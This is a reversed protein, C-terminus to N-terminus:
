HMIFSSSLVYKEVSIAHPRTSACDFTTFQLNCVIANIFIILFLRKLLEAIIRRRHRNERWKEKRLLEEQFNFKYQKNGAMDRM